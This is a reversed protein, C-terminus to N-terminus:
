QAAHSSHCSRLRGKSIFMLREMQVSSWLLHSHKSVNQSRVLIIEGIKAHLAL